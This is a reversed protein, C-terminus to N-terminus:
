ADVSELQDSLTALITHGDLHYPTGPHTDMYQFWEGVTMPHDALDFPPASPTGKAQVDSMVFLRRLHLARGFATVAVVAPEPASEVRHLNLAASEFAAMPYVALAGDADFADYRRISKWAELDVGIMEMLISSIRFREDLITNEDM